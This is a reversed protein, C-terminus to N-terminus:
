GDVGRLHYIHVSAPPSRLHGRVYEGERVVGVPVHQLTSHLIYIRVNWELTTNSHAKVSVIHKECNSHCKM